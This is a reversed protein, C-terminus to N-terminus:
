DEVGDPEPRTSKKKAKKPTKEPEAKEPPVETDPEAELEAKLQKVEARIKELRKRKERTTAPPTLELEQLESRFRTWVWKKSHEFCEDKEEAYCPLELLIDVRAFEYDVDTPFTGGITLGVKAPQSAFVRVKLADDDKETLTLESKKTIKGFKEYHRRVIAYGAKAVAVAPAEGKETM